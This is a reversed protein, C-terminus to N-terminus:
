NIFESMIENSFLMGNETLYCRNNEIKLLKLKSYKDIIEKYKEEFNINFKNNFDTLNIGSKLRLALFIENEMTETQSLIEEEEHKTPTKIYEEFNCLNKYRINEEYGSANLGFGYYNKNKWYACNHNSEYGSKAFNSIEYHSFNNEKLHKCLETFMAAQMEDDPLNKPINKGFFSDDEIKLGYSSIHQVDLCVAKELDSKWLAMTQNPLGYILDISINSFGAKKINEIACYITDETHNRGIEKLLNNDFSQIGLSIRNFGAEKIKILKDLTITEPNAEITIETESSFNFLDLIEKLEEAELLTPTGGGFYITKLEEGKYKTKIECLLANM